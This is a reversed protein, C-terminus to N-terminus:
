GAARALEGFRSNADIAFQGGGKRQLTGQRLLNGFVKLSEERSFDAAMAGSVKNMLQPRSFAAHGEVFATYAAAAEMVDSLDTAKAKQLYAEFSPQTQKQVGAQPAAAAAPKSPAAAPVVQAPVAQPAAASATPRKKDIRQSAVLKLPAIQVPQTDTDAEMGFPADSQSQALDNRYLTEKAAQTAGMGGAAATAVAAKMQAYSEHRVQQAPTDMVKNTQVFLRDVDATSAAASQQNQVQPAAAAVPEAKAKPRTVDAVSQDTAEALAEILDADDDTLPMAKDGSLFEALGNIDEDMDVTKPAPDAVTEAMVPAAEAQVEIEPAAQPVPADSQVPATPEEAVPAAPQPTPASQVPMGLDSRKMKIVRPVIPAQPEQTDEVATEAAFPDETQQPEPAHDDETQLVDAKPAAKVPDSPAPPQIPEPDVKAMATQVPAADTQVPTQLAMPPEEAKPESEPEPQASLVVNNGELRGKVQRDMEKQAIAALVAADPQPPEAGFYRDDAALDRFYEAIARMTDFSDEFGELTCSFTGYSVTLVKSNTVTM